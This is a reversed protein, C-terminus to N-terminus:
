FNGLFLVIISLILLALIEYPIYKKYKGYIAMIETRCDLNHVNKGILIESTAM